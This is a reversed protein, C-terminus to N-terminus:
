GLSARFTKQPIRQAFIKERVSWLCRKPYGGFFPRWTIKWVNPAMKERLPLYNAFMKMYKALFKLSKWCILVTPPASADGGGVVVASLCVLPVVRFLKLISAIGISLQLLFFQSKLFNVMIFRRFTKVVSECIWSLLWHLTQVLEVVLLTTAEAARAM